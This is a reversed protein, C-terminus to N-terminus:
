GTRGRRHGYTQIYNRKYVIYMYKSVFTLFCLLIKLMLDSFILLVDCMIEPTWMITSWECVTIYM